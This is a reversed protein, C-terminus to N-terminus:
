TSQRVIIDTSLIVRRTIIPIHNLQDMLLNCSQWGLQYMPQSVTSITPVTMSSLNVNDFGMVAIDQPVTLGVHEAAKIAASAFVDSVCFIADPKQSESLLTTMSSFALSYDVDDVHLILEPFVPLGAEKLADTFGKERFRAYSFDFPANLMAIRKKGISILYNVAHKSASYDDIAVYPVQEHETYQSCMVLPHKNLLAEITDMGPVPHTLIIGHFISNDLLFDYSQRDQFMELQQLFLHYNRKKAADQMGQIVPGYFPNVRTPFTALIMPTHRQGPQYDLQRMAWFVRERTDQKVTLPQNLVRSATATSVNALAAIQQITVKKSVAM